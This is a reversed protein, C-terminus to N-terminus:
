DSQAGEYATVATKPSWSKSASLRVKIEEKLKFLMGQIIKAHIEEIWVQLHCFFLLLTVGVSGTGAHRLVGCTRRTRGAGTRVGFVGPRGVVMEDPPRVVLFLTFFLLEGHANSVRHGLHELAVVPSQHRHWYADVARTFAFRVDFPGHICEHDPSLCRPPFQGVLVRMQVVCLEAFSKSFKPPLGANCKWVLIATRKRASARRM